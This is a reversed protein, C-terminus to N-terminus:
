SMAFSTHVQEETEDHADSPLVAGMECIRQTQRKCLDFYKACLFCNRPDVQLRALVSTLSRRRSLGLSGDPHGLKPGYSLPVSSTRVASPM